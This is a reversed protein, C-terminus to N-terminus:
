REEKVRLLFKELENEQCQQILRQVKGSQSDEHARIIV